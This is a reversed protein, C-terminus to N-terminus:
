AAVFNRLDVSNELTQFFRALHLGDCLGHHATLSIPLRGTESNLQGIILRPISDEPSLRLPQVLDTFELWPLCSVHAVDLRDNVLCREALAVAKAEEVNATFGDLDPTLEATAYYFLEEEQDLVVFSPDIREFLLVRGDIIRYRFNEISNLAWMAAFLLVSFSHRGPRTRLNARALDLKATVGVYPYPSDAYLAFHRARKWAPVHIERYARRALM